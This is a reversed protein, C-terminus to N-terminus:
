PHILYIWVSLASTKEEADELYSFTTLHEHTLSNGGNANPYPPRKELLVYFVAVDNLRSLSM